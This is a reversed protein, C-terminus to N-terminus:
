NLSERIARAKRRPLGPIISRKDITGRKRGQPILEDAFPATGGTQFYTRQESLRIINELSSSRWSSQNRNPIGKEKLATAIQRITCGERRCVMIFRITAMEAPNEVLEGTVEDRGIGYPPFRPNGNLPNSLITTLRRESAAESEMLALDKMTKLFHQGNVADTNVNDQVSAFSAGHAFLEELLPILSNADPVARSLSYVLFLAEQECAAKIAADYGPRPSDKHTYIAGDDYFRGALEYQHATCYRMCFDLQTDRSAGRHASRPAFRCFIIAPKM